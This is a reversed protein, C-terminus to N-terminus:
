NTSGRTTTGTTAPELGTRWGEYSRGRLETSLAVSKSDTHPPEIGGPAMRPLPRSHCFGGRPPKQDGGGDRDRERDALCGDHVDVLGLQLLCVGPEDRGGRAPEDQVRAVRPPVGAGSPLAHAEGALGLPFGVREERHQAGIQGHCQGASGREDAQQRRLSPERRRAALAAPLQAFSEGIRELVVAGVPEILRSHTDWDGSAWM